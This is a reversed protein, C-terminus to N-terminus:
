GRDEPRSIILYAKSVLKGVHVAHMIYYNHSQTKLGNQLVKM